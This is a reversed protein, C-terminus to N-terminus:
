TPSRQRRFMALAFAAIGAGISAMLAWRPLDRPSRWSLEWGTGLSERSFTADPERSKNKCDCLQQVEGLPEREKKVDAREPMAGCARVASFSSTPRSREVKAECAAGLHIALEDLLSEFEGEPLAAGSSFAEQLSAPTLVEYAALSQMVLLGCLECIAANCGYKAVDFKEQPRRPILYCAPTPRDRVLLNHPVRKAALAEVCAGTVSAVRASPGEFVLAGVYHDYTVSLSVGSITAYPHREAKEIPLQDTTAQGDLGRCYLGHVHLHNVSAFAGLSNYAVRFDMSDSAQALEFMAQVGERRLASQPLLKDAWLPVVTHGVMLPSVNVLVMHLTGCLKISLIKEAESAKFFHFRSANFPMAMDVADPARPAHGRKSNWHEDDFMAIALDSIRRRKAAKLGAIPLKVNAPPCSYYEMVRADFDM